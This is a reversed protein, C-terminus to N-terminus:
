LEVVGKKRKTTKPTFAGLFFARYSRETNPDAIVDKAIFRFQQRIMFEVVRPDKNLQKSIRKVLTEFLKNRPVM